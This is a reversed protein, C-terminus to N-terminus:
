IENKIKISKKYSFIFNTFVLLLLLLWIIPTNKFFDIVLFITKPALNSSIFNRSKNLLISLNKTLGTFTLWPKILFIFNILFSVLFVVSLFYIEFSPYSFLLHLLSCILSTVGMSMLAILSGFIYFSM